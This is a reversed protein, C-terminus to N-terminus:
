LPKEVTHHPEEKNKESKDVAVACAADGTINVATRAMDLVRDIGLILAIGEVPLSVQTLVMALMILGVGPVGATGISALVATLVVMVLQAFSLDSGYVQAIFLTAVGQMIATGDMNVTAGLPQVFSSVPKSVGLREQATKMSIPLVASSSSTSFAVTMAPFFNKFFFIPNMKGIFYVISGYFLAGHIVLGAIVLVMYAFMARMGDIGMEGIASALLGFAGYPAFRMILNVLWMMIENGQEILNFIGATKQGLMALALGIFISFTIIQLMNEEAMSQLPNEPIINTFTDVVGPAEEQQEYNAGSPDINANGPEFIFALLLAITIAVTTSILFFGITKGGIRGLKKPDGLSATGLTISFFVIPVVLMKILNLFITGLPDFLYTDLQTFLDPSTLNLVLGIVAGLILGIFIKITLNM